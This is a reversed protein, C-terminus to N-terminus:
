KGNRLDRWLNITEQHLASRVSTIKESPDFRSSKRGERGDECGSTDDSIASTYTM